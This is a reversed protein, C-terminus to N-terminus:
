GRTVEEGDHAAADHAAEEDADADLPEDEPGPTFSLRDVRAGDVREVRLTGSALEVEDGEAPLRDLEDTVFGGVTEYERDDPVRIGTDELLEDPRLSGDFTVVDGHRELTARRRDHEDELEGVLEEVVDELTVLGATGGYEDAVIAMQLGGRRLVGLLTDVNMSEPVRVPEVSLV